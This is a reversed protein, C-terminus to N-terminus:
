AAGGKGNLEAFREGIDFFDGAESDYELVARVKHFYLRVASNEEHEKVYLYIAGSKNGTTRHLRLFATSKPHRDRMLQDALIEVLRDIDSNDPLLVNNAKRMLETVKVLSMPLKSASYFDTLFIM